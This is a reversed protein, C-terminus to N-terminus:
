SSPTHTSTRMLRSVAHPEQEKPTLLEAASQQKRSHQEPLSKTGEARLKKQGIMM